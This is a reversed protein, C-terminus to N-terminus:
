NFAGAVPHERAPRERFAPMVEAAFLEQAKITQWHAFGGCNCTISIETLGECMDRVAEIREIVDQPTGVWVVDDSVMKDYPTKALEEMIGSAYFGYGAAQLKDADPLEGTLLVSANGELFRRMGLEAERLATDRDPDLYCAHIWVIDPENGHHACSSRYIDLQNALAAYPLLPPVVVSWGLEGAREYTSDSTGGAFIRTHRTPRPTIHSDVITFADGNHSFRENALAALLVELAEDYRARTQEIPLGAKEAVWAHGRGFGFEYRGDLMVEAVGIRSALVTPNHYPLVHLLTRFKIRRTRQAAAAFVQLPDASISFRDFFFHEILAYADFGLRDANVIQELVEEYLQERPKGGWYQMESYISFRM